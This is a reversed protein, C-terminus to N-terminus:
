KSESYTESKKFYPLCNAYNWGKAGDEREWRDYDFPHGRVYVMANLTSCGGWVRGRPWYFVRNGVNKQAVTHYFWNYRDHCLNYMLAAPMHIRWDWWYDQPGAEILLVRNNPNETLRNAIVSGASGAGIVIHTPKKEGLDPEIYGM